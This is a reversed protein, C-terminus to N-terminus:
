APGEEPRHVASELKKILEAADIPRTLYDAAGMALARARDAKSPDFATLHIVPVDRTLEHSKLHALVEFGNLGPLNVDLLILSPRGTAMKVAQHGDEAEIVHYGANALMRTTAYRQIADDDVVLIRPRVENTLIERIRDLLETPHVPKALVDFHMGHERAERVLDSTAAHGSLMLVRCDPLFKRIEIAADVGNMQPMIVDTLLFDPQFRRAAKIAQYGDHAIETQYGRSDLIARITTAIVREDDVILVKQKEAM